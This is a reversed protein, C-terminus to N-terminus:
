NSLWKKQYFTSAYFNHFNGAFANIDEYNWEFVSTEEVNFNVKKRNFEYGFDFSGNKPFIFKNTLTLSQDNINNFVKNKFVDVDDADDTITFEYDSEYNSNTFAVQVNWTKSFDVSTSISVANTTSIVLDNSNLDEEFLDADYNFKNGSNFFSAKLLWKETPRFLVKANWDYFNLIQEADSDEEQDAVKTEQFVKASYSNLTPSRFLGNITNRGSILASLKHEIIPIDVYAHAETFTTGVGGRFSSAIQDSLSM